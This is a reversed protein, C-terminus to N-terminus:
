SLLAVAGWLGSDGKFWWVGCMLRWSATRDGRVGGVRVRVRIIVHLGVAGDLGCDRYSSNRHGDEGGVAKFGSSVEEVGDVDSCFRQGDGASVYYFNKERTMLSLSLVLFGNDYEVLLQSVRARM